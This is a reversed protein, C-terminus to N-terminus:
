ARTGGVGKKTGLALSCPVTDVFCEVLPADKPVCRAFGDIALQTGQRNRKDWWDFHSM